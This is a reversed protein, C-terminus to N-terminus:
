RSNSSWSSTIVIIFVGFSIKQCQMSESFLLKDTLVRFNIFATSDSTM